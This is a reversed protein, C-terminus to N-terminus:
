DVGPGEGAADGAEGGAVGRETGAGAGVGVEAHSGGEDGAATGAGRRLAFVSDHDALLVSEEVGQACLSSREEPRCLRTGITNLAAQDPANRDVVLADVERRRIEILSRKRELRLPPRARRYVVASKAARCKHIALQHPLDLRGIVRQGQSHRRNHAIHNQDARRIGDIHSLRRANM